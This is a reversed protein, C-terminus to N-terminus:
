IRNFLEIEKETLNKWEIRSDILEGFESRLEVIPIGNKFEVVKFIIVKELQLNENVANPHIAINCFKNNTVVSSYIMLDTWFQGYFLEWSLMSTLFYPEKETVFKKSIFNNLAELHILKSKLEKPLNKRLDQLTKYAMQSWSNGIPLNTPLYHGVKIKRTTNGKWISLFGEDEIKPKSELMSPLLENSCYFISKGSLNARGNNTCFSTPPYSYTQILSLDEKKRDINLRVRYFKRNNFNEPSLYEFNTPLSYAYDFFKDYIEERNSNSFDYNNLTELGDIFKEYEPFLTFIQEHNQLYNKM